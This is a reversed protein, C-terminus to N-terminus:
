ITKKYISAPPSKFDANERDAPLPEQKKPSLVKIRETEDVSSPTQPEGNTNPSKSDRKVMKEDFYQMWYNLESLTQAQSHLLHKQSKLEFYCDDISKKCFFVLTPLVIFLMLYAIIEM